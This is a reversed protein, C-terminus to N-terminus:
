LVSKVNQYSRPRRRVNTNKITWTAVCGRHRCSLSFFFSLHLRALYAHRCFILKIPSWSIRKPPVPMYLLDQSVFNFNVRVIARKSNRERHVDHLFYFFLGSSAYSQWRLALRFDGRFLFCGRTERLFGKVPLYIIFQFIILFFFSVKWVRNTIFFPVLVPHM